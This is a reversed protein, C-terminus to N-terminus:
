DSKSQFESLDFNIKSDSKISFPKFRDYNNILNLKFGFPIGDSMTYGEFKENKVFHTFVFNGYGELYIRSFDKFDITDINISSIQFDKIQFVFKKIHNLENEIIFDLIMKNLDSVEIEPRVTEKALVLIFKAKPFRNLLKTRRKILFETDGKKLSSQAKVEFIIEEGTIPNKAYADIEFREDQNIKVHYKSKFNFGLEEYKLKLKAIEIFELNEGFTRKIQKM